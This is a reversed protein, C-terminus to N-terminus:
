LHKPKIRKDTPDWICICLAAAGSVQFFVFNLSADFQEAELFMEVCCSDIDM